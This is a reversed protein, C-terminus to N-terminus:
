KEFSSKMPFRKELFPRIRARDTDKSRQSDNLCFLDPQYKNLRNEYDHKHVPIRISEKRGVYQLHGKGVALSYYLFASRHMDGYMRIHSSLSREVQKDFVQEVAYQYDSKLYADVNHHPIGSYYKGFEQNVLSAGDVVMSTFQGLNKRVMKKLRYHYKGFIKKKLRVIPMGEKDYFYDYSLPKNFFMDDNAFLFHEALGPIKYLFYEIVSSNFCPLAERPLIETHDVIQIKPHDKKLWVPCQDDTVIYIRRIWPLYQEASRLSFKLEDNNIYRGKNNEESHDAPRGTFQEKKEIWKPDNGDVWLYVLDIDFPEM